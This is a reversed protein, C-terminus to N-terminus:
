QLAPERLDRGFAAGDAAAERGEVLLVVTAATAVRGQEVEQWLPGDVRGQQRLFILALQVVGEVQLGAVVPGCVLHGQPDGDVRFGDARQCRLDVGRVAVLLRAFRGM